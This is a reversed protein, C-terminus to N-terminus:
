IQLTARVNRHCLKGGRVYNEVTPEARKRKKQRKPPEDVVARNAGGCNVLRKTAEEVKQVKKQLRRTADEVKQKIVYEPKTVYETFRKKYQDYDIKWQRKAVEKPPVVVYKEYKKILGQGKANVNKEKM